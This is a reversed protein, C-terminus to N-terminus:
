LHSYNCIFSKEHYIQVVVYVLAYLWWFASLLAEALNFSTLPFGSLIFSSVSFFFASRFSPSSLM